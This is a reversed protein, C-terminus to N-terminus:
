EVEPTPILCAPKPSCLYAATPVILTRPLVPQALSMPPSLYPTPHWTSICALSSCTSALPAALTLLEPPLCHHAPASTSLLLGLFNRVLQAAPISSGPALIMKKYRLAPTPDLLDDANFETFLDKGIVSSWLYTYYKPGQSELHGFAYQYHNNKMFPVPTAREWASQVLQNLDLHPGTGHYWLSVKAYMAQSALWM